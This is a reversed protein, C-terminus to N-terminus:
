TNKSINRVQRKSVVMTGNHKLSDIITRKVLFSEGSHKYSKLGTAQNLIITFHKLAFTSLNVKSDM